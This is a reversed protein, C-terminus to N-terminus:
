ELQPRGGPLLDVLVGFVEADELPSDSAILHIEVRLGRRLLNVIDRKLDRAAKNSSVAVTAPSSYVSKRFIIKEPDSLELSRSGRGRVVETVDGVRVIAYIWGEDKVIKKFEQGLDAAGKNSEVAIICDGRRTLFRDKTVEFTTRHTAVVNPHGKAKVVEVAIRKLDQTAHDSHTKM